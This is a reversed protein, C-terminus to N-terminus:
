MSNQIGTLSLLYGILWGFAAAISGNTAMYLGSLFWSQGVFSGKLSGLAFLTLVTMVCSSILVADSSLNLFHPILNVLYPLLPVMGFLMFSAFTILGGTVVSAEPDVPMINLEEVMMIDLFAEKYKSLTTIVLRADDPSIGKKVYLEVMEDIEGSPYNDFEWEERRREHAALDVEAQSSLADGLGMSIGDAVLHALGLILIVSHDLGSGAVSTVTAFTTIIGDLGGYVASKIYDGGQLHGESAGLKMDHIARSLTVDLASHATQAQHKFESAATPHSQTSGYHLSPRSSPGNSTSSM